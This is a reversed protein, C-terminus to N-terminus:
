DSQVNEEVEIQVASTEGRHGQARRCGSSDVNEHQFGAILHMGPDPEVEDATALKVLKKASAKTAPPKSKAKPKASPEAPAPEDVAIHEPEVEGATAPEELQKAKTKASRPKSKPKVKDPPEAPEPEDIGPPFLKKTLSLAVNPPIDDLPSM